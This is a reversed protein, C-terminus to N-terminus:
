GRAVTLTVAVSPETPDVELWVQEMLGNRTVHQTPDLTLTAGPATSFTASGWGGTLGTLTATGASANVSTTVNNAGDWVFAPLQMGLRTLRAPPPLTVSCSMALTPSAGGAATGMSIAQRVSAGSALAWTLTFSVKDAAASTVSLLVSSVNPASAGALSIRESSDSAWWPGLAIPGGSGGPGSGTPSGGSSILLPHALACLAPDGVGCTNLHLRHAGAPDYSPDAGTELQAWVGGANAVVLRHEPLEYAFGGVDAPAACEPISDDAYAWAASLFSAPLLNYNSFFSYDEYGWRQQPPWWNKVVQFAGSAGQWRALSEASLYAARKFTCASANDGASRAATASLEYELVAV